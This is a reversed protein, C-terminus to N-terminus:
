SKGSVSQALENKKLAISCYHSCMERLAYLNPYILIIHEGHGIKDLREICELNTGTIENDLNISMESILSLKDHHNVIIYETDVRSHFKM